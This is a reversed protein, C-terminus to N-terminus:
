RETTLSMVQEKYKRSVRVLEGDQMMLGINGFGLSQLGTICRTAVIASHHVRVFGYPGLLESLRTITERYLYKRGSACMLAAYSGDATIYCIEAYRVFEQKSGTKVIFHDADLAARQQEQLTALKVQLASAKKDKERLKERYVLLLGLGAHILYLYFVVFSNGSAFSVKGESELAQWEGQELTIPRTVAFTAAAYYHYVAALSVALVVQLAIVVTWQRQSSIGPYWWRFQMGYWLLGVIWCLGYFPLEAPSSSFWILSRGAPLLLIATWIAAATAWNQLFAGQKM